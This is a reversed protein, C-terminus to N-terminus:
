LWGSNLPSEGRATTTEAQRGRDQAMEDIEDIEDIGTSQTPQQHGKKKGKRKGM